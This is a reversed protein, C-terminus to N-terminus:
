GTHAFVKSNVIRVLFDVFGPIDEAKISAGKEVMLNVEKTWGNKDMAQVQILRLEHCSSCSQNLIQEGRADTMPATQGAGFAVAASCLTAFVWMATKGSM